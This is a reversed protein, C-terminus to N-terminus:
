LPLAVVIWREPYTGDPSRVDTCTLLTLQDHETPYAVEVSTEPVVFKEQVAYVRTEDNASVFILDGAELTHLDIFLGHVGNPYYSHAGLVTNGHQNPSMTGELWGVHAEYPSIRWVGHVIPFEVVASSIELAPISVIAGIARRPAAVRYFPQEPVWGIVGAYSVQLWEDSQSLLYASRYATVSGVIDADDIPAVRMEVAISAQVSSYRAFTAADATQPFGVMLVLLAAFGVVGWKKIM